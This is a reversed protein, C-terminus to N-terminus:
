FLFFCMIRVRHRIYNLSVKNPLEIYLIEFITVIGFAYDIISKLELALKLEAM